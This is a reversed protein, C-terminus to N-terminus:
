QAGEQWGFAGCVLFEVRHAARARGAPSGRENRRFKTVREPVRGAPARTVRRPAIRARSGAPCGLSRIRDGTQALSPLGAPSALARLEGSSTM